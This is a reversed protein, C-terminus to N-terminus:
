DFDMITSIVLRKIHEHKKPMDDKTDILQILNILDRLKSIKYWNGSLKYDSNKNYEDEFADILNENFYEEYRFFQGIDGIPHGAMTFEWDLIGSLNGNKILINTVQFDGHVLRINEDLEDLININKKVILNIKNVISEGLRKKAMNGMLNEYWSVLPPLKDQVQLNCDFFGVKDFKYSHIKSLSRAVSRVLGEDLKYGHNIAMEITKGDMYEYIAYQRNKILEDKSIKYIKSVPLIKDEKLMTLLKIERMYNQEMSYFIKLLYKKKNSETEVIYNTTRCGQNIPIINIINSENLIGKFLKNVITGDVELFPFTREWNYEM